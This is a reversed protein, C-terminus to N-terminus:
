ADTPREDMDGALTRVAFELGLLHMRHREWEARKVASLNHGFRVLEDLPDFVERVRAYEEVVLRLRQCTALAKPRSWYVHIVGGILTHASEPVIRDAYLREDDLIQSTLRDILERAERAPVEDIMM